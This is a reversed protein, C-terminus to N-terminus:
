QAPILACAPELAPVPLQCLLRMASDRFPPSPRSDLAARALRERQATALLDGRQARHVLDHYELSLM